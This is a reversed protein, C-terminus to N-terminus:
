NVYRYPKYDRGNRFYASLNRVENRLLQEYTKTESGIKVTQLLKRELEKLFIRKGNESLYIGGRDMSRFDATVDLMKRNVLTFITRDVLVPKFLDALDLNLSEARTASNHLIGFRIDLSTRYIENALRTYLLTNGFSIMANLPDQPPRRTRKVFRFADNNIIQNFCMYYKQRAQAEYMLINDITSEAKVKELIETIYDIAERIEQSHGRREYYRLVARLNFINANQLKRAIKLHRKEDTLLKIQAIEVKYDGKKKNPIFSGLQEGSRDIINIVLNESSVFKFFNSSFSVSSYVSLSDMTEVPLFHKNEENEFLISFDKKTLIGDNVIHYHHDIKRVSDQKWKSYVEKRHSIIRQSYVHGGKEYFEYGLCPRNIATYVGSKQGNVRLGMEILEHEIKKRADEAEQLTRFFVRVDDGYRCYNVYQSSTKFDFDMLYINSLLPSLPSGQLIGVNLYHIDGDNDVKCKVFSMLFRVLRKDSFLDNIQDSLRDQPISDFFSKVDIETVWENGAEIYDAATEAMTQPSLNARYAYCKSSLIADIELGIVQLLARALLRDVSNMTSITRKKRSPSLIDTQRVIGVEYKGNLVSDIIKDQNTTWFHSVESLKVRDIGCSDKKQSLHSLALDINEKEFVREITCEKM